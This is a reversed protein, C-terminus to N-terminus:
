WGRWAPDAGHLHGRVARGRVASASAGNGLHLVIVNVEEPAKGLLEATQGPSTRTRPATSATAASATRTPPRWTSRTAPRRSRCRRTSRPTSSPSRRCTRACRRRAYPHRHPQGPQAAAGGPCGSSRRRAGRRRDVTPETFQMGATCWGTGSRPWSPPTWASGTRPWSRPRGGEAGGRPRRDPRDARPARRRRRDAPHAAAPLDGRRDARGPRVALRTSDRMDLLQYKVSSSGSNLVLVRIATM